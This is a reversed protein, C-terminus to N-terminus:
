TGSVGAYRSRHLESRAFRRGSAGPQRMAYGVLEGASCAALGVWLLVFLRVDFGRGARTVERFVGPFRRFPILPAGAAYVFRHPRSWSRCRWVAWVRAHDFRARISALGVVNLHRTRAAPEYLLQHGGARLDAQLHWESALADDLSAGYALLLDRRYATNHGPLRETPGAQWREIWEGFDIFFNSWSMASQPNACIMAPGVAALSGRHADILAKAWGPEPFSHTEGFVVIPARAARVGAARARYLENLSDETVIVVQIAGLRDRMEDTVVLPAASTTVIVLELRDAVSQRCLCGVTERITELADTPLVVSMDPPDSTM